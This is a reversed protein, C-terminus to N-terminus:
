ATRKLEAAEHAIREIDGRSIGIDALDRDSLVQLEHLTELYARREESVAFPNKLFGIIQGLLDGANLEQRAFGAHHKLEYTAM